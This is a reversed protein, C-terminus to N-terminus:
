RGVVEIRKKQAAVGDRYIELENRIRLFELHPHTNHTIRQEIAIAKNVNRIALNLAELLDQYDNMM